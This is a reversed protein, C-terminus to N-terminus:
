GEASAEDMTSETRGSSKTTDLIEAIEKFLVTDASGALFIHESGLGRPPDPKLDLSLLEFHFDGDRKYAELSVMGSREIGRVMFIMQVRRAPSQFYSTRQRRESGQVAQSLSEVSYGRFGGPRWFEGLADNVAEYKRLERLAARYVDDVHFSMRNRAFAASGVILAAALMGCGCGITFIQKPELHFFFKMIRVSARYFGYMVFTMGLMVGMVTRNQNAWSLMQQAM